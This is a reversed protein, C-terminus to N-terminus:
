RPAEPPEANTLLRLPLSETLLGHVVCRDRYCRLGELQIPTLNYDMVNTLYDQCRDLPLDMSASWKHALDDLREMGWHKAALLVETLEPLSRDTRALWGAYVFPFGTLEKWGAGLDYVTTGPLLHFLKLDGILLGADCAALMADLQPPYPEYCPTLGFQEALLIKLLAVSTLSSTDLAVSCISEL